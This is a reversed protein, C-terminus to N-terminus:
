RGGRNVVVEWGYYLDSNAGPLDTEDFFAIDHDELSAQEGLQHIRRNPNAAIDTVDGPDVKCAYGVAPLVGIVSAIKWTAGPEQAQRMIYASLHHYHPVLPNDIFGERRSKIGFGPRLRVGASDKFLTVGEYVIGVVACKYDPGNAMSQERIDLWVMTHYAKGLQDANVFYASLYDTATLVRQDGQKARPSFIQPSHHAHVGIMEEAIHDDVWRHWEDRDFEMYHLLHRHFIDYIEAKEQDTPRAM